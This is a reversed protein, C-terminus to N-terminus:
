DIRGMFGLLPVMFVQLLIERSLVGQLRDCLQVAFGMMHLWRTFIWPDEVVEASPIGAPSGM